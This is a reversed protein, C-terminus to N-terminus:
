SEVVFQSQSREFARILGNTYPKLFKQESMWTRNMIEAVLLVNWVATMEWTAGVRPMVMTCLRVLEDEIPALSGQLVCLWLYAQFMDLDRLCSHKVSPHDLRGRRTSTKPFQRLLNMYVRHSIAEVEPLMHHVVQFAPSSFDHKSAAECVRLWPLAVQEELFKFYPKVFIQEVANLNELLAVNSLNFHTTLFGLKAWDHSIQHREQYELLLPEVFSALKIIDTNSLGVLQVRDGKGAQVTENLSYSPQKYFELLNLYIEVTCQVINTIESPSTTSPTFEYLESARTAAYDCNLEILSRHLKAVTEQRGELSIVHFLTESAFHHQASFPIQPQYREAWIKVLQQTTLNQSIDSSILM